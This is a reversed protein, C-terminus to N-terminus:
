PSLQEWTCAHERGAQGLLRTLHTIAEARDQTSLGGRLVAKTIARGTCGTSECAESEAREVAIDWWGGVPLPAM